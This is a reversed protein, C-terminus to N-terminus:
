AALDYAKRDLALGTNMDEWVRTEHDCWIPLAGPRGFKRWATMWSDRHRTKWKAYAAKDQIIKAAEAWDPHGQMAANTASFSEKYAQMSDVFFEDVQHSALLQANEEVMLDSLIPISPAINVHVRIGADKLKRIAAWRASAKVPVAEMRIQAARPIPPVTFHVRAKPLSAILALDDLVIPSRTFIGVKSPPSQASALLQLTLRTLRSKREQPQYPDTMTGMVIRKGAVDPIEKPLRKAIHDRTRVFQGWPEQKDKVFFRVYCYSCGFQCGVYPNLCLDYGQFNSDVTLKGRNAQTVKM